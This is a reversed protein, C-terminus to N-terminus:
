RGPEPAPILVQDVFKRTAAETGVSQNPCRYANLWPPSVTHQEFGGAIAYRTLEGMVENTQTDIVKLTTSAVGMAREEPIVHDEYTVAYRPAPDAAPVRDLFVNWWETKASLDRERRLTYRYRKGDKEDVVDVYRYGPKNSPDSSNFDTTIFGRRTPSVPEGTPSPSHEYGLFTEIYENSTAEKAFAAGPFNRDYWEPDAARPRVKLLLVGEVGEVKRYIKEGAVTECKNEWYALAAKGQEKAPDSCASLLTTALLLAAFRRPRKSPGVPSKPAM